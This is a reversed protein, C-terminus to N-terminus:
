QPAGLLGGMLRALSSEWSVREVGFAARIKACDLVSYMPRAAATPYESTAIPSLRAVGGRRAQRKQAEHLIALAFEYWSTEGKGCFHYTGWLTKKLDSQVWEAIRVLGTALELSWTPCGHQDSVVKLEDRELGLKLITKVFNRGGAGYLWSTRIIIHQDLRSRVAEEGKLKSLGYVNIPNVGDEEQYPRSFKGDFVYDTSIHILPIELKRCEDALNAPGDRNAAFAARPESEAKDVATYAACNIVLGPAAIAGLASRVSEPSTIDMESRGLAVTKLGACKLAEVLDAGLMGASGVVVTNTNRNM